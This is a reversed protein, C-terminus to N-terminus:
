KNLEATAEPLWQKLNRVRDADVPHTSLYKDWRSGPQPTTKQMREFFDIGAGPEYGARAMLILGIHDAETEQERSHPLDLCLEKAAKTGKLLNTVTGPKLKGNDRAFELLLEIGAMTGQEVYERSITEGAHRAIAHAVEHGIVFALENDNTVFSLMGSNVMIKGGPACFANVENTEIVVFEWQFTPRQAAIALNTAVRDVKSTFILNTSLPQTNTIQQLTRGGLEAEQQATLLNLQRRKTIPVEPFYPKCAEMAESKAIKYAEAAAVIANSKAREYAKRAAEVAVKWDEGAQSPPQTKPKPTHPQSLVVALVVVVVVVVLISLVAVIGPRLKTNM